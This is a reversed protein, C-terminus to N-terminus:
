QRGLKQHPNKQIAFLEMIKNQKNFQKVQVDKLCLEKIRM